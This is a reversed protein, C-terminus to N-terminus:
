PGVWQLPDVAMGAIRLEWHLHAGTSLGTSGVAGLRQGATVHQGAQVDLKSLHWYGTFVGHGHDILVANGRVFMLEALVVTGDAPAYVPTGPAASFDEGAHASLTPDSGYTRRTGYPSTRPYDGVLPLRFRSRATWGDAGFVTWLATVRTLDAQVQAPQALIPDAVAAPINIQSFAGPQIPVQVVLRQEGAALVLRHLGPPTLPPIPILTWGHRGQGIVPYAAADLQATFTIPARAHLWVAVTQGQEPPWPWIQVGTLAGDAPLNLVPRSAVSGGTKLTQGVALRDPDQLSNWAMLAAVDLGARAAIASLTDGPQVVYTPAGTAALGSAAPQPSLLAADVQMGSGDGPRARVILGDAAASATAIALVGFAVLTVLAAKGWQGLRGTEHM